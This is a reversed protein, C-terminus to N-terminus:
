SGDVEILYRHNQIEFNFQPQPVVRSKKEIIWFLDIKQVVDTKKLIIKIKSKKFYWWKQGSMIQHISFLGPRLNRLGLYRPWIIYIKTCQHFYQGSILLALNPINWYITSWLVLRWDRIFENFVPSRDILRGIWSYIYIYEGKEGWLKWSNAGEGESCFTERLLVGLSKEFQM